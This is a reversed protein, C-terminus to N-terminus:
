WHVGGIVAIGFLVVGTYNMNELTIPYRTPLLFLVSTIGLFVVSISGTILGGLRGLNFDRLPFEVGVHSVRLYIPIAYSIQYGIAAISTIALFATNNVLNLLLLLVDVIFVLLIAGVPTQNTGSVKRIFKSGPFAGDRAMAYGIRSTVTLSSMGSFYMIVLIIWSCTLALNEGGCGYFVGFVDLSEGENGLFDEVRHATRYLLGLLYLFGIGATALSTYVIGYPAFVRAKKTEESM